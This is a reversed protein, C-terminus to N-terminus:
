TGDENYSLVRLANSLNNASNVFVGHQTPSCFDNLLETLIRNYYVNDTSIQYHLDPSNYSFALWLYPSNLIDLDIELVNSNLTNFDDWYDISLKRGSKISFTKLKSTGSDILAIGMMWGPIAINPNPLLLTNILWTSSFSFFKTKLSLEDLASGPKTLVFTGNSFEDYADVQNLWNNLALVSLNNYVPGYQKWETVNDINISFGDSPFFTRGLTGPSPRGTFLDYYNTYKRWNNLSQKTLINSVPSNDAHASATTGEAGREVTFNTGSVITVRLIESDIKISFEGTLPFKLASVVNINTQGSDISGALSTQADNAFKEDAM